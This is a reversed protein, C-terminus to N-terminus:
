HRSREDRTTPGQPLRTRFRSAPRVMRGVAIVVGVYLGMIGGGILGCTAGVIPGDTALEGQLQAFATDVLLPAVVAAITCLLVTAIAFGAVLGGAGCRRAIPVVVLLAGGICTCALPVTGVFPGHYSGFTTVGVAGPAIGALAGGALGATIPNAVVVLPALWRRARDFGVVCAEVFVAYLIGAIPAFVALLSAIKLWPMDVDHNLAFYVAYLGIAPLSGALAGGRVCAGWRPDLPRRPKRPWLPAIEWGLEDAEM